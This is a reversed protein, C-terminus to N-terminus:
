ERLMISVTADISIAELSKGTRRRLRVSIEDGFRLKAIAAAGPTKRSNRVQRTKLDFPSIYAFLRRLPRRPDWGMPRRAGELWPRHDPGQAEESEGETDQDTEHIIINPRRKTSNRSYQGFLTPSTDHLVGRDASENRRRGINPVRESVIFSFLTLFILNGSFAVGRRFSAIGRRFSRFGTISRRQCGNCKRVLDEANELATPWFGHRFVKAVLARSSAHHGCEGQHIEVLM